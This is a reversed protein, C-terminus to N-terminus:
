RKPPVRELLKKSPPYYGLPSPRGLLRKSPPYYGLVPDVPTPREPLALDSEPYPSYDKDLRLLDRINRDNDSRLDPVLLDEVPYAAKLNQPLGDGALLLGAMLVAHTLM